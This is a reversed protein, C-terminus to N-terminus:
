SESLKKKVNSVRKLIRVQSNTIKAKEFKWVQSHVMKVVLNWLSIQDNREYVMGFGSIEIYNRARVHTLM